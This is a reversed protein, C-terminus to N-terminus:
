VSALGTQGELKSGANGVWVVRCRHSASPNEDLILEILQGRRLRFSGRLRFGENSSDLVLCPFRKLNFELEMVLSARKKSIERKCRRAELVPFGSMKQGGTSLYHHLRRMRKM